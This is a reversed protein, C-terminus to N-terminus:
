LGGTYNSRPPTLQDVSDSTQVLIVSYTIISGALQACHESSEHLLSVRVLYEKLEKLKCSFSSLHCRENSMQQSLRAVEAFDTAAYFCYTMTLLLQETSVGEDFLCYTCICTVTLVTTASAMISYQWVGNLTKKLDAISCLNMRVVELDQVDGAVLKAFAATNGKALATRLTDHQHRIYSVLVECCPRLALSHLIDYIFFLSSFLLVGAKLLFELFENGAVDVMRVTRNVNFAVHAFFMIVIFFRFFYWMRSRPHHCEPGFATRKEYKTSKRFFVAMARSGFVVTVVNVVVRVAIVAWIVVLMSKTFSRVRYFLRMANAVTIALEVATLGLLCTISYLTYWTKWTAQVDYANRSQLGQLFFLGVALFVWGYPKFHTAMVSAM